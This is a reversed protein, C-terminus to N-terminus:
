NIFTKIKNTRWLRLSLTSSLMLSTCITEWAIGQAGFNRSILPGSVVWIFLIIMLMINLFYLHNSLQSILVVQGFLVVLLNGVTLVLTPYIAAQFNNGFVAPVVFFSTSCIGLSVILAFSAAKNVNSKCISNIIQLDQARISKGIAPGFGSAQLTPIITVIASIRMAIFLFAVESTNVNAYGIILIPAWTLAYFMVSSCMTLVLAKTPVFKFNPKQWILAFSRFNINQIEIILTFFAAASSIWISILFSCFAANLTPGWILSILLYIGITLLPPICLELMIGSILKGHTRIYAAIIVLAAYPILSLSGWALVIKDIDDLGFNVNIVLLLCILSTFLTAILTTKSSELVIWNEKNTRGMKLLYNDLGLRGITSCLYFLTIAYFFVGAADPSLTRSVVVSLLLTLCLAVIRSGIPAYSTNKLFRKM